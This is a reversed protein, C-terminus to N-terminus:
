HKNTRLQEVTSYELLRAVYITWDKSKEVNMNVMMNVRVAM